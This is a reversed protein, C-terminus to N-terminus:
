DTFYYDVALDVAFQKGRLVPPVPVDAAANRFM